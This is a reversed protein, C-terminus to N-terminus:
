NFGGPLRTVIGNEVFFSAQGSQYHNGAYDIMEFILAFYGNGVTRDYFRTDESVVAFGMPLPPYDIYWEGFANQFMIYHLPKVEDGLALQRFTKSAMGQEADDAKWAGLIEYEGNGGIDYTYGVHLFYEENNLLIPVAYLIRGPEMDIPEMYVNMGDISGWTDRFDEIFLGNTYDATLDRNTGFSARFVEEGDDDMSIWMLKVFVAAINSARDPGLDMQWRGSPGVTVPFGSLGMEDLPPLPDIQPAPEGLEAALGYIYTVAEDPLVSGAAYAHYYTFPLATDLTQYRATSGAEGTLNYYCALGSARARYNGKVQYIVCDNLADRLAQGSQPLLYEAKALLDGLDVMEYDGKGYVQANRAARGFKSFYTHKEKVAMLLAEDGVAKYAALLADARSLDTVSLTIENAAGYKAVCAAYYSDCIARGLEAGDMAPDVALAGFLGSYDWGIGPEIEQSAVLYRAHGHLVEVVEVTAMLCADMGVLEYAGSAAPAAALAAGLEPLTLFDNDHLRDFEMGYISGGGHDWLILAQKDAPYNENCYRLFAALTEPDGMSALPISEAWTFEDGSYVYRELMTPDVVDNDWSESGGTEIVVTVNEPLTVQLMEVLDATALGYESELNSGCLYWYVAWTEPTDPVPTESKEVPSETLDAVPPNTADPTRAPPTCGYILLVMLVLAIARLIFPARNKRKGNPQTDCNSCSRAM